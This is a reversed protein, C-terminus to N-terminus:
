PTVEEDLHITWELEGYSSITFLVYESPQWAVRRSGAAGDSRESALSELGTEGIVDLYLSGEGTWSITATTADGDYRFVADGVGHDGSVLPLAEAPELTLQWRGGGVVWLERNDYVPIVTPEWDFASGLYVPLGDDLMYLSLSDREESMTVRVPRGLLEEPLTVLASGDSSWVDGDREAHVVEDNQWPTRDGRAAERAVSSAITAVGGVLAGVAVVIALTISFRRIRRGAADSVTVGM